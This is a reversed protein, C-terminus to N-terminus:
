NESTEVNPSVNLEEPPFKALIKEVTKAMRALQSSSISNKTRKFQDRGHWIAVGDRSIDIIIDTLMENNTMPISGGVNMGFGGSSGMSGTGVGISISSDSPKESYVVSYTVEFDADQEVQNYNQTVLQNTIAQYVAQKFKDDHKITIADDENEYPAVANEIGYKALENDAGTEEATKDKALDDMASQMDKAIEQQEAKAKIAPQTISFTALNTFDADKNFDVYAKNTSQCGLTTLALCLLLTSKLCPNFRQSVSM